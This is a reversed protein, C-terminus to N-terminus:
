IKGCMSKFRAKTACATRHEFVTSTALFEPGVCLISPFESEVMFGGLIEARGHTRDKQNVTQSGIAVVHICRDVLDIERLVQPGSTMIHPNCLKTARSATSVDSFKPLFSFDVVEIVDYELINRCQDVFYELFGAGTLDMPNTM